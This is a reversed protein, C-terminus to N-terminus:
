ISRFRAGAISTRGVLNCLYFATYFQHADLILVDFIYPFTIDQLGYVSPMGVLLAMDPTCLMGISILQAKNTEADADMCLM